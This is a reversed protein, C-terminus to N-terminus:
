ICLKIKRKMQIQQHHEWLDLKFKSSKMIMLKMFIAVYCHNYTDDKNVDILEFTTTKVHEHTQYTSIDPISFVDCYNIEKIILSRM